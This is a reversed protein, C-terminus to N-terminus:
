LDIISRQENFKHTSFQGRPGTIEHILEINSNRNSLLCRTGFLNSAGQAAGVVYEINLGAIQDVEMKSNM